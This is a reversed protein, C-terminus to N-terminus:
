RVQLRQVFADRMLQDGFAFHHKPRAPASPFEVAMIHNRGALEAVAAARCGELAFTKRASSSTQRADQSRSFAKEVTSAFAFSRRGIAIFVSDWSKFRAAPDHVHCSVAKAGAKARIDAAAKARARVDAQRADFEPCRGEVFTCEFKEGTFFTCTSKGHRKDREFFGDITDDANFSCGGVADSHQGDVKYKFSGKGHHM